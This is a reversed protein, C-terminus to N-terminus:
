CGYNLVGTNNAIEKAVEELPKVTDTLGAEFVVKPMGYVASTKEDQAIVYCNNKQALTHIGMTGDGGMGTLVCCIIEDFDLDAISEFLIDACPKLANRAPEEANLDIVYGRGSKKLRMQTGGKAIYVTGKEIEQGHEAEVVKISSEANLREALSKTFGVAMHQVLLIPANLNKPLNPIVTQLAKPGGTSVAILVLKKANASVAKHPRRPTTIAALIERANMPSVVRSTDTTGSSAPRISYTHGSSALSIKELLKAKFADSRFELFSEPKRIFDFAGLELAKITEKSDQKLNASVIITKVQIRAKKIAALFELGTMRPLNIEMLVLDYDSPNKSVKDYAELGDVCTGVVTFRSDASIIDSETRRMLASDDVILIKLKNM